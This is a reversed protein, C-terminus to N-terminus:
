RKRTVRIAYLREKAGLTLFEGNDLRLRKTNGPLQILDLVEVANGAVRIFDGRRVTTSMVKVIKVSPPLRLM